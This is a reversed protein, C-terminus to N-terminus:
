DNLVEKGEETVWAENVNPTEPNDGKYQGEENRARRRGRKKPKAEEEKTVPALDMEKKEEVPPFLFKVGSPEEKKEPAAKIEKKPPEADEGSFHGGCSKYFKLAWETCKASDSPHIRRGNVLAQEWLEPTLPRKPM